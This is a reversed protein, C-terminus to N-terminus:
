PQPVSQVRSRDVEGNWVVKEIDIPQDNSGDQDILRPSTNMKSKRKLLRFQAGGVWFLYWFDKAYRKALRQPDTSMRWLWELGSKQMWKPARIQRGTIFDLSAGVGITLRAGTEQYYTAIWREQKPCGLAVLLIDPNAERIEKCYAANNWNIVPAHPPSITGVVQLQPYKHELIKKSRALTPSDSGFFFFKLPREKSAQFLQIVLDSGAVREPIPAGVLKSIWVIPMGDCLARHAFFLINRLDDDNYAQTAFDMNPTVWYNPVKQNLTALADSLATSLTTRHFPLGLVMVIEPDSTQTPPLKETLTSM